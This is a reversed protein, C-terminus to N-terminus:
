FPIDSNHPFLKHRLAYYKERWRYPIATMLRYRLTMHSLAANYGDQWGASYDWTEEDDMYGPEFYDCVDDDDQDQWGLENSYKALWRYAKEADFENDPQNHNFPMM